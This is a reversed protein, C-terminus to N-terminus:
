KRFMNLYEKEEKTVRYSDKIKSITKNIVFSNLKNIELYKLTKEKQKIYVTCIDM